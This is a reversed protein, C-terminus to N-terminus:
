SLLKIVKTRGLLSLYLRYIEQFCVIQEDPRESLVKALGAAHTLDSSEEVFHKLAKLTAALSFDRDMPELGHRVADSVLQPVYYFDSDRVYSLGSSSSDLTSSSASASASSPTFSTLHPQASATPEVIVTSPYVQLLKLSLLNDLPTKSSPTHDKNASTILSQLIEILERPIPVTGFWHLSTLLFHDTQPLDIYKLLNRTFKHVLSSNHTRDEDVAKSTTAESESAMLAASTTLHDDEQERELEDLNSDQREIVDKRFEELVKRRSDTDGQSLREACVTSTIDIVDPCGGTHETILSFLKQEENYPIFDDTDCGKMIAHVLRQTSHLSSLPKLNITNTGRLLDRDISKIFDKPIETSNITVIIHTNINRM